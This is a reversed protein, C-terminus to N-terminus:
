ALEEQYACALDLVSNDMLRNGIIQAGVPMGKSDFGCPVSVAPLGALNVSVTFIDSLYMKLTDNISEGLLPATTPAVPSIIFDYKSFIKDFYNKIIAKVQLAKKYYSDYFGSSLVFTGLLIRKIVETGFGESRTMNYLTALDDAGARYGYKVGDYRSLNSSSEATAIIYYAPIVYDNFPLSIYEVEAGMSRFTDAVTLVHARVEEEVGDGFCESPLAIKKERVSHLSAQQETASLDSLKLSTGDKPDHGAIVKYIAACDAADRGIPGIQDLSSAYALLGHRSVTGYTPKFGTVGCYSAPQRISGGTDSGLSCFAERAAVAAASGGSSGGSVRNKDWPNKVAGYYSTESTSGMAFEDMNLKGIVILGAKELREVVTASYPPIFNELMKSACSTLLGKTCINDKIAIPVGALPSTLEGSQIKAQIATAQEMCKERSALSIFSNTSSSEAANLAAQVAESVSIEGSKIKRGLQLASLDLIM